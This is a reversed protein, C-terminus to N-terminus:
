GCRISFPFAYCQRCPYFDEGNVDGFCLSDLFMRNRLNGNPDQSYFPVSVSVNRFPVYAQQVPIHYLAEGVLLGQSLDAVSGEPLVDGKQHIVSQNGGGPVDDLDGIDPQSHLDDSLLTV